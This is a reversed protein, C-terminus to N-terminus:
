ITIYQNQKDSYNMNFQFHHCDHQTVDTSAPFCTPPIRGSEEVTIKNNKM